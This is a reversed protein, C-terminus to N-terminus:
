DFETKLDLHQMGKKLDLISQEKILNCGRIDLVQLNICNRRIANISRATVKSCGNVNLDIIGNCIVAILEIGEDTVKRCGTIDLKEVWLYDALSCLGADTIQGCKALSLKQITNAKLCMMQLFADDVSYLGSVRLDEIVGCHSLAELVAETTFGTSFSIDLVRISDLLPFNYEFPNAMLELSRDTLKDCGRLILEELTRCRESLGRIGADTLNVCDRMNLSQIHTLMHEDALPRGDYDRDYNLADDSLLFVDELNIHELYWCKAVVARAGKDSVRSLGCMNIFKLNKMSEAISGAGYDSIDRCFSIDLHSMTKDSVASCILSMGADTIHCGSINLASLKRNNLALVHILEFTVHVCKNLNVYTLRQCAQFLPSLGEDTLHVAGGFNVSELTEAVDLLYQIGSDDILPCNEMNIVRIKSSRGLSTLSANTLLHCGGFDFGISLSAYTTIIAVDHDTVNLISRGVSKFLDGVRVIKLNRDERAQRVVAVVLEPSEIDSLWGLDTEGYAFTLNSDRIVESYIQAAVAIYDSPNGPYDLAFGHPVHVLDERNMTSHRSFFYRDLRKIAPFGKVILDGYQAEMPLAKLIAAIGEPVGISEFREIIEMVKLKGKSVGENFTSKTENKLYEVMSRAFGELIFTDNPAVRLAEEYKLSAMGYMRQADHLSDTKSFLYHLRVRDHNLCRSYIALNSIRGYFCHDPQSSNGDTHAAGIRLPRQMKIRGEENRKENRDELEQRSQAFRDKIDKVNKVYLEGIYNAKAQKLAAARRAKIAEKENEMDDGIGLNQFEITEMIDQTESKLFAVGSKSMFYKDAQAKTKEKVKEKDKDEKATLKLKKERVEGDHVERQEHMLPEVEVSSVLAGNSYTSLVQGDYTFMLHMWEDNLCPTLKLAISCLGDYFIFTLDGDKAVTLSHRGCEWIIRNTDPGGTLYVFVEMTWHDHFSKQVLQEHFKIDLFGGNEPTFYASRSFPDPLIPGPCWLELGRSFMGDFDKGLSGRNTCARSGKRENMEYYLVPEDNMVMTKFSNEALEDAKASTLMAEAMIMQPMNHRVVPHVEIFDIDCFNFALPNEMFHTFCMPNLQTGVMTLIRKVIYILVPHIMNAMHSKESPFVSKPGFRHRISEYLVIEMKTQSEPHSGTIVNLYETVMGKMMQRSVTGSKRAYSRLKNRILNKVTRAMMEGLLVARMDESNNQNKLRGVRATLRPLSREMIPESLPISTPKIKRKETEKVVFDTKVDFVEVHDGDFVERGLDEETKLRKEGFFMDVHGPLDRWFLSRLLGLHRINVGRCHLEETVNLGFGDAIPLVFDRGAFNEALQPILDDVLYKTAERAEDDQKDSDQTRHTCWLLANPSLDGHDYQRCFEPRFQRWFVTQDRPSRWLHPTFEPCESPFAKWFNSAYFENDTGKYVQIESSASTEVGLPDRLGKVFSSTLNLKNSVQMLLNDARKNKNTFYNGDPTLGHVREESIKRIEGEDNFTIHKTPVTSSAVVRFGAYDITATLAVNLGHIHTKLYELAGLREKGGAKMSIEESGDFVGNYDDCVTYEIDHMQYLYYKGKKGRGMIEGRGDVDMEKVVHLTQTYKERYYEAILLMADSTATDLFEQCVGRIESYKVNIERRNVEPAGLANKLRKMWSQRVHADIAPDVEESLDGNKRNRLLRATLVKKKTEKVSLLSRHLEERQKEITNIHLTAEEHFKLWFKEAREIEFDLAEKESLQENSILKRDMMTSLQDM